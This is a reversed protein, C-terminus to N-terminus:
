LIGHFHKKLQHILKISYFKYRWITLHFFIIINLIYVCFFNFISFFNLRENMFIGNLWNIEIVIQTVSTAAFIGIFLNFLSTKLYKKDFYELLINWAFWCYPFFVKIFAVYHNQWINTISYTSMFYPHTNIFGCIWSPSVHAAYSSLEL